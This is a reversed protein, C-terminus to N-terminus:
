LGSKIGFGVVGKDQWRSEKDFIQPRFELSLWLEPNEFVTNLIPIHDLFSLRSTFIAGVAETLYANLSKTQDINTWDCSEGGVLYVDQNLKDILHYTLKLAVAHQTKLGNEYSGSDLTVRVYGFTSIKESIPIVKGGIVLGPNGEWSLGAFTQANGLNWCLTTLITALLLSIAFRKM